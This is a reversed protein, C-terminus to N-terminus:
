TSEMTKEVIKYFYRVEKDENLLINLAKYAEMQETYVGEITFLTDENYQVDETRTIIYYTMKENRQTTPKGKVRICIIDVNERHTLVIERRKRM